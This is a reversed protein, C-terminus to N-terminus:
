IEFIVSCDSSPLEVAARVQLDSCDVLDFTGLDVMKETQRYRAALVRFALAEDQHASWSQANVSSFRPGTVYPHSSVYRQSDKDF